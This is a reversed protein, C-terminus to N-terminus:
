EFFPEVTIRKGVLFADAVLQFPRADVDCARSNILDAFHKYLPAYEAHPDMKDADSGARRRGDLFLAAGGHALKLTGAGTSIDIDWTQIGSHRFDFEARVELGSDSKFRLDAAIPADCNSPFYLNASAVFIPAPLITTLISIANIGPDFVGFGGAQWIWTQGPHWQRVDEKWVINIQHVVRSKLWQRAADVAPAYRSHWAQFLTLKSALALRTLLKLQVTSSCPPKELLVHKGRTLALHAADYHFQPPTCIAVADLDRQADLMEKLTTYNEVDDIRSNRSACAVIEFAPNAQLVPIHQDRAIKGIGVLGVRLRKVLM